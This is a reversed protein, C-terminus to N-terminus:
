STSRVIASGRLRSISVAPTLVALAAALVIVAILFLRRLPRRRTREPSPAVAKLFRLRTVPDRICTALRGTWQRDPDLPEEYVRM